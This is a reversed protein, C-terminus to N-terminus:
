VKQWAKPNKSGPGIKNLIETTETWFEMGLPHREKVRARVHMEM